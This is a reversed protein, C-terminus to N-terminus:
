TAPTGPKYLEGDIYLKDKSFYVKRNEDKAKKFVPQLLKRADQIVKPFQQRVYIKKIAPDDSNPLTKSEIRVTERQQFQNFKVVIPRVKGETKKAKNTPFRHAREIIITQDINMHDKILHQVVDICNETPTPSGDMPQDPEFEPVGFFLLNDRMSRSQLDVVTENLKENQVQVGDLLAKLTNVEKSSVDSKKEKKSKEFKDNMFKQSNEVDVLRDNFSKLEDKFGSVKSCLTDVKSILTKAWEPPASTNQTPPPPQLMTFQPPSVGPYPFYQPQPTGCPSPMGMYQQPQSM